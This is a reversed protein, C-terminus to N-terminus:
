GNGEGNAPLPAEVLTALKAEEVASLSAPKRPPVRRRMSMGIAGGGFVLLLVPTGWLLLTDLKFPPKLLIFDGYRSVLFDKIQQNSEGAKIRQRILVRFDHALTAQSEDISENQCVLCRLQASLARARAELKPNKLMEGPEVALALRPMVAFFVIAALALFKRNMTM